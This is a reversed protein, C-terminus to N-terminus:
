GGTATTDTTDTTETTETPTTEVPAVITKATFKEHCRGYSATVKATTASTFVGHVKETLPKGGMLAKKHKSSFTGGATVKMKLPFPYGACKSTFDTVRTMKANVTFHAHKSNWRGPAPTAAGALSGAVLFGAAAVVPVCALRRAFRLRSGHAGPADSM